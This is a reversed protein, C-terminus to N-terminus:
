ENRDVKVQGTMKMVVVRVAKGGRRSLWMYGGKGKVSGMPQFVVRNDEFSCSDLPDHPNEISVGSPLVYEKAMLTGSANEIRVKQPEENIDISVVYESRGTIAMQRAQGFLASIDRSAARLQSSGSFQSFFPLSMGIMLSVLALVVIIETLSIGKPRTDSRSGIPLIM